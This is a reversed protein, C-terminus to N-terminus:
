KKMPGVMENYNNSDMTMKVWTSASIIDVM